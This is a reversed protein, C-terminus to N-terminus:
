EKGVWLESVKLDTELKRAVQKASERDPLGIVRLRYLTRGDSANPIVTVKGAGPQLRVAWSEAMNRTAYSGFNVFWPGSSPAPPKAPAPPEPTPAQTTIEPAPEVKQTDESSTAPTAAPGTALATQLEDLQAQLGAVTDSLARNELRLAEAEIALTDFAQKQEELADRNAGLDRPGNTALAARLERLENETATRQQMVGYGGAVLLVLAVIAVAILSLPWSQQRDEEEEFYNERETWTDSEDEDQLDSDYENDRDEHQFLDPEDDGPYEDDYDEEPGDDDAHYGATYDADRDSEEYAEDEDYPSFTPEQRLKGPPSPSVGHSRENDNGSHDDNDRAMTYACRHTKIIPAIM